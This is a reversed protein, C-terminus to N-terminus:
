ARCLAAARGAAPRTSGARCSVGFGSGDDLVAAPDKRRPQLIGNAEELSLKPFAVTLLYGAEAGAHGCRGGQGRDGPAGDRAWLDPRPTSRKTSRRRTSAAPTRSAHLSRRNHRRLGGRAGEHPRDPTNAVATRFDEITAPVQPASMATARAFDKIGAWTPPITPLCIAVLDYTAVTRGGLVDMAFTAGMVIRDNGFDRPPSWRESLSEAGAHRRLLLSGM